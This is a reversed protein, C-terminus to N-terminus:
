ASGLVRVMDLKKLQGSRSLNRYATFRIHGKKGGSRANDRLSTTIRNIAVATRAGEALEFPVARRYRAIFVRGKFTNLNYSSVLGLFEESTEDRETFAIYEYTRRDFQPGIQVTAGRGYTAELTAKVATESKSIPRHMERISSECKEVLSDFRERTLDKPVSQPAKLEKYQKGLTKNYDVHFGLTESIVYDYASGILHGLPTEKPATSLHYLTTGALVIAAPLKWSGEESPLALISAGKLSPAQTIIEGNLILHTTLALSRQFGVLAQGADYLDVANQDAVGGEYRLTIELLM